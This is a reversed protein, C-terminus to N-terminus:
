YYDIVRVTVEGEVPENMASSSFLETRRIWNGQADNVYVYTRRNINTGDKAWEAKEIERGSGDFKHTERHYVSDSARAAELIRGMSDRTTSVRVSGEDWVQETKVTGDDLRVKRENHHTEFIEKPPDQGYNYQSVLDEGTAEDHKRVLLGTLSDGCYDREEDRLSDKHLRKTCNLNGNEFIQEEEVDGESDRVYRVTVQPTKNDFQLREEVLRGLQWVFETRQCTSIEHHADGSSVSSPGCYEFLWVSGDPSFYATSTTFRSINDALKNEIVSRVNGRLGLKQLSPPEDAACAPAIGLVLFPIFARQQLRKMPEARNKSNFYCGWAGPLFLHVICLLLQERTHM